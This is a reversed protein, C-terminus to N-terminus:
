VDIQYDEPGGGGDSAGDTLDLYGDDFPIAQPIDAYDDLSEGFGSMVSVSSVKREMGGDAEDSDFGSVGAGLADYSPLEEEEADHVGAYAATTRAFCM